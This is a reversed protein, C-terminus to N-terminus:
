PPRGHCLERRARLDHDDPAPDDTRRDGVVQGPEAPGVHQQDLLPGQRAARGPVRGAQDTRQARRLAPGPQHLVRGLEVVRELRLGPQGGAVAVDSAHDHRAGLVPHHLQPTRRGTRRRVVHVALQDRRRPGLLEPRRHPDVVQEARDPQGTVALDVRGVHGLRQRLTSPQATSPDDLPHPHRAEVGLLTRGTAPHGPDDGVLTGDLRLDHDVARPLPRLRESVQDADGHRQVRRLVEVHDGLSDFAHM